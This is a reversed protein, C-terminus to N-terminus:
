SHATREAPHPRITYNWEGHVRHSILELQAMQEDSVKVGTVYATKDIECRIWLGKQTHTGAILNVITALSVLPRGRWNKTIYSFMRHEIKNWKSTGPPFHLVTIVLGTEDALAQLEWKWLRPRYGNSGGSDATILLEKATPYTQSGMSYWWRRISNVAFRPTDHTVGISVWGANRTLDYIGYPSAKGLEKIKFDHVRVREPNGRPRWERGGNKFDGVLEKKKGDVSIVPQGRKQFALVSRNIYLFQRNREPPSGRETDKRNAQLSYHLGDLIHGVTQHSVQHGMTRLHVALKRLSKTTWQLGSQPHGSATPEVLGELDTLLTPDIDLSRKRGAGPRRVRDVPLVPETDLERMGRRITSRSVGTARSVAAVADRGRGKAEVAVFLRRARENLSPALLRFRNALDRTDM